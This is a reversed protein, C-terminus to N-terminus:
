VNETSLPIGMDTAQKDQNPFSYHRFENVSGPSNSRRLTGFIMDLKGTDHDHSVNLLVNVPKGYDTFSKMENLTVHLPTWVTWYRGTCVLVAPERHLVKILFM